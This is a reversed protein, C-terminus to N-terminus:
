LSKRTWNEREAGREGERIEEFGRAGDREKGKKEKERVRDRKGADKEGGGVGDDRTERLWATLESKMRMCLKSLKAM